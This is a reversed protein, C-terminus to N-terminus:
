NRNRYIKHYLTPNIPVNDNLIDSQKNKYHVKLLGVKSDDSKCTSRGPARGSSRSSSPKNKSSIIEIHEDYSPPDYIQRKLDRYKRENIKNPNWSIYLGMEKYNNIYGHSIDVLLGNNLLHKRIDRLLQLYDFTPYGFYFRNPVFFLDKYGNKNQEKIKDNCKLLVYECLAIKSSNNKNLEDLDLFLKSM